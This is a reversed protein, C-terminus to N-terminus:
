PRRTAAIIVSISVGSPWLMPLLRSTMSLISTSLPWPGASRVSTHRCSAAFISTSASLPDEASHRAMASATIASPEAKAFHM